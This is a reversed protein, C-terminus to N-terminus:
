KCKGDFGILGLKKTPVVYTTEGFTFKDFKGLDILLEMGALGVNMTMAANEIPIANLFNPLDNIPRDELGKELIYIILDRGTM